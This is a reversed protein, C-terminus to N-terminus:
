YENRDASHNNNEMLHKEREKVISREIVSSYPSFTWRSLYHTTGWLLFFPFFAILANAYLQKKNSLKNNRALYVFTEGFFLAFYISYFAVFRYVIELHIQMVMFLIGIMMLPEFRLLSESTQHKKVYYLSFIAYILNPLIHLIIHNMNGGQGGFYDSEAYGELKTGVTGDLNLLVLYDGYGGQLARAAIFACILVVVGKRNLRLFFLLPIFFMLFTQVHFMLGIILLLYGKLWKKNLFYDNAYLSLVIGFSGRMIEMSLNLYSIIVYFLLCTFVYQSHKSIYKFILINIFAAHILQVVYFRGGLSKVTSNLLVYFPDRGIPYEKFSFDSLLPYINYFSNLYSATDWMLRWRLGAYLILYGLVFLCWQRYHKRKRKIDYNYSLWLLILIILFFLM